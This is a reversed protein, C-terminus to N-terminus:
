WEPPAYLTVAGTARTQNLDILRQNRSGRFDLELSRESLLFPGDVLVDTVALLAAVDPDSAAIETLKEYTYGTYTWVNLGRAHARRALEACAAAQCFPEGGTLTVGDLLPNGSFKKEVDDLTYVTGAEFDHSGPNHCGPCHHPCGQAFISTRFGPGDVISDTVLGYLRITDTM